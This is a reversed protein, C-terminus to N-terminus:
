TPSSMTIGRDKAHEVIELKENCKTKYFTSEKINGNNGYRLIEFKPFNFEVNNEEAWEYMSQLDLQLTEMDVSNIGKAVRTDGAFSSM